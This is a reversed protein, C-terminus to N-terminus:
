NLNWVKRSWKLLSAELVKQEPSVNPVKFKALNVDFNDFKSMSNNLRM